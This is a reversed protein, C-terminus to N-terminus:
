FKTTAIMADIMNDCVQWTISPLRDLVHGVKFRKQFTEVVKTISHNGVGTLVQSSTERKGTRPNLYDIKIAIARTM